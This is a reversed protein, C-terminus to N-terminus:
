GRRVYFRGIAIDRAVDRISTEILKKPDRGPTNWPKKGLVPDFVDYPSRQYTYEFVPYGQPSQIARLVHVSDSFRGSRNHLASGVMNDRIAPALRSNLYEVIASLNFTSGQTTKDAPATFVSAVPKVTIKDKVTTTKSVTAQATDIKQITGSAGMAVAANNLRKRIQDVKSDSGKQTPWTQDQVAKQLAAVIRNKRTAIDSRGEQQNQAGSRLQGEVRSGVQFVKNGNNTYYSIIETIVNYDDEMIFSRSKLESLISGSRRTNLLSSAIRTDSVARTHDFQILSGAKVASNTEGAVSKLYDLAKTSAETLTDAIIRYSDAYGEVIVKNGKIFRSLRGQVQKRFISAAQGITKDDLKDLFGPDKLQLERTIEASISTASLDIYQAERNLSPRYERSTKTTIEDVLAQLSQKSM